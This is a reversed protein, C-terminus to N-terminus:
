ARSARQLVNADQFDAALQARPAALQQAVHARVDHFYLRRGAVSGASPLREIAALRM